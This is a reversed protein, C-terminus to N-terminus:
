LKADNVRIIWGNISIQILHNNTDMFFIISYEDEYDLYQQDTLKMGKQEDFMSKTLLLYKTLNIDLIKQSTAKDTVVFRTKKDAMLRLTNLEARAVSISDLSVTNQYYAGYSITDDPLVNGWAGFTGNDAKLEYTYDSDVMADGSMHEFLAVIRNTLKRVYVNVCVNKGSTPTIDLRETTM